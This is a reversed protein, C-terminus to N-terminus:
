AKDPKGGAKICDQETKTMTFGKGKCANQGKCANSASKCSGHGKCANAGVCKVDAAQATGATVIPAAFFMAAAAAALMTGTTKSTMSIGRQIHNLM